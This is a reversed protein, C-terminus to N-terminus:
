KTYFGLTSGARRNNESCYVVHLVLACRSKTGKRKNARLGHGYGCTAIVVACECSCDCCAVAFQLGCDLTTCRGVLCCPGFLRSSAKTPIQERIQGILVFPRRLPSRLTSLYSCYYRVVIVLLVPLLQAANYVCHLSAPCLRHTCAACSNERPSDTPMNLREYSFLAIM